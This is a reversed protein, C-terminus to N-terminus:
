ATPQVDVLPQTRSIRAVVAAQSKELQSKSPKPHDKAEKAETKYFEALAQQVTEETCGFQFLTEFKSTHEVYETLLVGLARSQDPIRLVASVITALAAVVGLLSQVDVTFGWITWDRLYNGVTFSASIGIILKLAIDLRTLTAVKHQYYDVNMQSTLAYEWAVERCDKVGDLSLM